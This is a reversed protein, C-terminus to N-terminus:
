WIAIWFNTNEDYAFMHKGDEVLWTEPELTESYNLSIEDGAEGTSVKDVAEQISDAEVEVLSFHIERRHVTYKM